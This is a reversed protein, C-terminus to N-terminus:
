VMKEACHWAATHGIEGRQEDKSLTSEEMNTVGGLLVPYQKHTGAKARLGRLALELGSKFLNRLETEGNMRDASDQGRDWSMAVEVIQKFSQHTRVIADNANSSKM